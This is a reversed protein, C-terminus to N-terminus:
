HRFSGGTVNVYVDCMVTNFSEDSATYQVLTLGLPYLSSSTENHTVNVSGSNDTVHPATMHVWTDVSLDAGFAEVYQPCSDSFVPSESDSPTVFM